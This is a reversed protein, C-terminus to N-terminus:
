PAEAHLSVKVLAAGAPGHMWDTRGSADVRDIMMGGLALPLYVLSGIFVGRSASLSRAVAMWASLLVLGAGAAAAVLGATPGIWGGVALASALPLLAASYLMASMGTLRGNHDSEPLMRFGGRAYDDRYMWALALFHPIQWFFLIGALLWAGTSLGQAAASWGILPPIAGCVAGVLTNLHTRTKLPTYAFVYLLITVGALMASLGNVAFLLVSPGAVAWLGAVLLADPPRLRGSPLPRQRTRLMRADREREIYQNLGNAGLAALATGLVTLLLQGWNITPGSALWFGAVSTLVVLGSLRHKGLELYTLVRGALGARDVAEGRAVRVDAVRAEPPSTRLVATAATQSSM